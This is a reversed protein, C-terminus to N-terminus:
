NASIYKQGQEDLLELPLVGDRLMADHFDRIDFKTALKQQAEKRLKVIELQGMKYSLAQGPWSIYRDVEALSETPAHLKFYEVAQERTWGMEHIGTDVVLRVARFRESAIGGFRSYPDRYLGLQGGLSESYLAWGELYASNGYFRRFEPLGQQSRALSTQFIHGPVAEHLVLAEKDYRVQKEPQYANLNFWGPVSGDPAPSQANSATAQERDEPIARVGYLLLPIHKFQNPLEPEIIKAINRCYILMDDKSQFHQEPTSDLKKEFEQLTGTFGTERAVALMEAELRAVEAEGIRHIEEPSTTTTTLRRVLIAYYEKGNKLSSLGIAPRAKPAYTTKMYDLLKQWAPLFEHEYSAVAEERLKKQQDETFNPPFKRFAILLPTAAPDQAVQATLQKVVLDVVVPPQTIGHDIAENMIAINQDVYTPIGHLRALLNQYDKLNRAPMRDIIQYVRGHLGTMQGVRLLYTELEVADLEARLQYRLLRASLQDGDPLSALSFADLGRLTEESSARRRDRAAKSWDTWQDANEFHGTTTALEPDNKLRADFYDKFYKQIADHPTQARIVNACILLGFTLIVHLPTSRRKKVSSGGPM